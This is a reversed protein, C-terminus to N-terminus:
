RVDSQVCDGGFQLCLADAPQLLQRRLLCAACPRLDPRSQTTVVNGCRLAMQLRPHQHMRTPSVSSASMSQLCASLRRGTQAASLRSSLLNNHIQLCGSRSYRIVLPLVSAAVLACKSSCAKKPSPRSWTTKKWCTPAATCGLCTPTPLLGGAQWAALDYVVVYTQRARWASAMGAAAVPAPQFCGLLGRAGPSHQAPEHNGFDGRWWSTQTVACPWSGHRVLSPLTMMAESCLMACAGSPLPPTYMANSFHTGVRCEAM